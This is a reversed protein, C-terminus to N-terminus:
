DELALELQDEAFSELDAKIQIESFLSDQSIEIYHQKVLELIALFVIITDIRSPLEGLLDSFNANPKSRLFQVIDTVKKRLTLKPITIEELDALNQAENALNELALILDTIEIGSLDFQVSVPYQQPLHLHTRLDSDIRTQLWKTTNKIERYIRLQRALEEGLDEEEPEHVPPHPLIAESKIQVLKSAIVLFESIYEPDAEEHERVYALFQDTVEALALKSIDLEAKQILDLLLDLPGSYLDTAIPYDDTKRIWSGPM